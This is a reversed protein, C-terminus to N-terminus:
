SGDDFADFEHAVPEGAETEREDDDRAHQGVGAVLRALFAGLVPPDVKVVDPGGQQEACPYGPQPFPVSLSERM